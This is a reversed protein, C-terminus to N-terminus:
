LSEFLKPSKEPPNLFMLSIDVERLMRPVEDIAGNALAVLQSSCTKWHVIIKDQEAIHSELQSMMIDHREEIEMRRWQDEKMREEYELMIEKMQSETSNFKIQIEYLEKMVKQKDQRAEDYSNKWQREFLLAMDWEKARSALEVKVATLDQTIKTIYDEDVKQKKVLRENVKVKEECEIRINTYNQQLSQFDDNLMTNKRKLREVEEKLKEMEECNVDVM